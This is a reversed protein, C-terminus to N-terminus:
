AYIEIWAQPDIKAERLFSKGAESDPNIRPHTAVYEALNPVVGGSTLRTTSCAPREGTRWASAISTTPLDEHEEPWEDPPAYLWNIDVV